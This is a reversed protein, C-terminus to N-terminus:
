ANLNIDEFWYRLANSGLASSFASGASNLLAVSFDTPPLVVNIM